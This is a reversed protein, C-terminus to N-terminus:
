YIDFFLQHFPTPSPKWKWFINTSFFVNVLILNIRIYIMDLTVACTMTKHGLKVYLRIFWIESRIIACFSFIRVSMSLSIHLSFHCLGMCQTFSLQCFISLSLCVCSLVSVSSLCKLLEFSVYVGGVYPKLDRAGNLIVRNADFEFHLSIEYSTSIKSSQTRCSEKFSLKAM